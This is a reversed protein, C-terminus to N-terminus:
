IPTQNSSKSEKQSTITICQSNESSITSTELTPSSHDMSAESHNVCKENCRAAEVDHISNVEPELLVGNVDNDAHDTCLLSGDPLQTLKAPVAHDKCLSNPCATCMATAPKKCQMCFHRPCEWKGRPVTELKLCEKHFSKPCGRRDCMILNGGEGCTFCDDEHMKEFDKKEHKKKKKKSSSTGNTSKKLQPDELKNPRVGIFGSCNASGCVCKTKENGRCDLNYNFTLETGSLHLM